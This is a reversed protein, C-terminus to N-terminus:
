RGSAPDFYFLRGGYKISRLQIPSHPSQGALHPPRPWSTEFFLWFDAFLEQARIFFRPRALLSRPLASKKDVVSDQAAGGVLFSSPPRPSLWRFWYNFFLDLVVIATSAKLAILSSSSRRGIFRLNPEYGTLACTLSTRLPLVVTQDFRESRPQVMQKGREAEFLCDGAFREASV